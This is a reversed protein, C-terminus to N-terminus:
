IISITTEEECRGTQTSMKVSKRMFRRRKGKGTGHKRLRLGM